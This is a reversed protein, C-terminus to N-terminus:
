RRSPGPPAGPAGFVPEEEPPPEDRIRIPPLARADMFVLPILAQVGLGGLIPDALPLTGTRELLLGRESSAFTSVEAGLHPLISSATPLLSIDLEIGERQLQSLGMQAVMHGIPYLIEFMRRADTYTLALTKDGVLGARSGLSTPLDVGRDITAKLMQPFASFLLHTDTVCWAPAFPLEEGVANLYYIRHDAYDTERLYVNRSLRGSPSREEVPARERVRAMIKAFSDRFADPNQLSLAATFGTILLGGQGPSSWMTLADGLHALVDEELKLGVTEEIEGLVEARFEERAGPQASEALDLVGRYIGLLDASVGYAISADGPVIALDGATLQPGDLLKLFGTRGSTGILSRATFGDGELGSESLVAELDMLGLAELGETRPGALAAVSQVIGAVDVFSRICPRAVRVEGHLQAFAPHDNLGAADAARLGRVIRAPTESGVALAVYGDVVAWSVPPGGPPLPLARFRVGDVAEPDESEIAMGPPMTSVLLSEMKRLTLQVAQAAEGLNIVLGAEIQDPGPPRDMRGLFACGPRRLALLGLDFLEGGLADGGTGRVAATRLAALIGTIMQQVQPEAVLAETENRRGPDPDAAGFWQLYAVTDSPAVRLLKPDEPLPPVAVPLPMALVSLLFLLLLSAGAAM